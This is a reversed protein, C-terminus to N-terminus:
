EPLPQFTGTVRVQEPTLWPAVLEHVRELTAEDALVVQVDLRGSMVDPGSSLIGLDQYVDNLAGQAALLDAETPGERQEVCLAGAWVERLSAHAAEPDGTVVVNFLSRGDSVWSGIYGELSQLRQQFMEQKALDPDSFGPDGGRFPDDCLQPFDLPEDTPQELGEPPTVSLPRTLTFTDSAKDYHGVGYYYGNTWRVEGQTEAEVDDWSFAGALTPGGCQPPYSTLVPGMCLEPAAGPTSQMVMGAGVVQSRGAAGAAAEEGPSGADPDVTASGCASLVLAGLALVGVARTAHSRRASM